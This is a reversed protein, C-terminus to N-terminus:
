RSVQPRRQGTAEGPSRRERYTEAFLRRARWLRRLVGPSTFLLLSLLALDHSWIFPLDRLYDRLSDNRLITLYRNKVIHYRLEAGHRSLARRAGGIALAGRAHRGLARHRYVARWGRRRARWALDLDEYYAFYREDFTSGDALAVTELMARRCLAAAGCAGFVDEDRDLQGRDERGYGRDIARRSRARLQGCSDLTRGEWRLLKGAALGVEADGFAPLLEELFGPMLRVDPNLVLVFPASTARIGVNNARCYGTNESCRILQVQPFREHVLQPAGDSSANDVVVIQQPPRVLALLSSLCDPLTRASNWSVIVVAVPARDSM